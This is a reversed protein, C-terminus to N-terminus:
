EVFKEFGRYFFGLNVIVKEVRNGDMKLIISFNEMVM